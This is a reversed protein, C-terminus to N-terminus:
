LAPPTDEPDIISFTPYGTTRTAGVTGGPYEWKYPIFKTHVAMTQYYEFMAAYQNWILQQPVRSTAVTPIRVGNASTSIIAFGSGLASAAFLEVADTLVVKRKFLMPAPAVAHRHHVVVPNAKNKRNKSKRTM